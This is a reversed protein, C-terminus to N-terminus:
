NLAGLELLSGIGMSPLMPISRALASTLVLSMLRAKFVSLVVSVSCGNVFLAGDKTLSGDEQLSGCFWLSGQLLLSGSRALSGDLYLTGHQMLSGSWASLVGM